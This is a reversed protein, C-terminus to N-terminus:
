HREFQQQKAENIPIYHSRKSLSTDCVPNNALPGSTCDPFTSTALVTSTFAALGGLLLTLEAM